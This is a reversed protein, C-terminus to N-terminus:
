PALLLFWTVAAPFAAALSTPQRVPVSVKSLPVSGVTLVMILVPSNQRRRVGLKMPQVDGSPYTRPSSILCGMHALREPDLALCLLATNTIKRRGRWSEGGDKELRKHGQPSIKIHPEDSPM